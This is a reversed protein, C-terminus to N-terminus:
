GGQLSAADEGRCWLSGAGDPRGDLCPRGGLPSGGDEEAKVPGASPRVATGAPPLISGQPTQSRTMGCGIAAGGGAHPRMPATHRTELLGCEHSCSGKNAAGFLDARMTMTRVL